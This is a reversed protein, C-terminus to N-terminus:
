LATVQLASGCIYEIYTHGHKTVSVEKSLESATLTVNGTYTGDTKAGPDPCKASEEYAIGTVTAEATIDMASATGSNTYVVHALNNQEGVSVICGAFASIQVEIKKGTTCGVIDVNATTAAAGTFTYKCGNMVVTTGLGSTKCTTYTPTLTVDKTKLVAAGKVGTVKGEFTSIACKTTLKGNPTTGDIVFAHEAGDLSGTLVATGNADLGVEIEENEAAQAASAIVAGMALVAMLAAALTKLNRKM